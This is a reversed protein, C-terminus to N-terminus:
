DPRKLRFADKDRCIHVWGDRPMIDFPAKGAPRVATRGLSSEFDLALPGRVALALRDRSPWGSYGRGLPSLTWPGSARREGPWWREVATGDRSLRAALAEFGPADGPPAILRAIRIDGALEELGRWHSRELSSLAVADLSRGEDLVAHTLDEGEGAADLLVLGDASSLLASSPGRRGMVAACEPVKEGLRFPAALAVLVAGLAAVRRVASWDPIFCVAAAAAYYVVMFFWGPAPAWAAARPVSACLRVAHIFGRTLAAVPAAALRFVRAPLCAAPVLAFGAAMLLCAWPVLVLNAPLSVFSVRHFYLALLPQIGLWTSAGVYLLGVAGRLAAPRPPVRWHAVAIILFLVSVFSLQFGAQLLMRPDWLLLGTGALLLAQLTGPERELLLAAVGAATMAFARLPPAEPGVLAVYLASAALGLGLSGARGAGLRRAAGSALLLVFSVKLGSAVLLHIAGSDRFAALLEPAVAKRGLVVGKMVGGAEPGLADFATECRARLRSVARKALPAPAAPELASASFLSHVGELALYRRWSGRGPFAPPLPLSLRGTLVVREGWEVTMGAPARVLVGGTVARSSGYATWAEAALRFEPGDPKPIPLSAVVGSLRGEGPALRSVDDAPVRELLGAQDAALIAAVLALFIFVLPRGLHSFHM